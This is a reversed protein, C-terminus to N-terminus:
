EIPETEDRAAEKAAEEAQETLHAEYERKWTNTRYGIDDVDAGDGTLLGGADKGDEGVSYVVLDEGDQIIRLPGHFHKPDPVAPLFDPVLQEVSTPYVDHALRYRECALFADLIRNRREANLLYSISLDNGLVFVRTFDYGGSDFHDANLTAKVEAQAHEIQDAIAFLDTTKTADCIRHVGILYAEVDEPELAGWWHYPQKLQKLSDLIWVRETLMNARLQRSYSICRISSQLEALQGDTFPVSGVMRAVAVNVAHNLSWRNPMAVSHPEAELCEPLTTLALLSQFVEPADKRHVAVYTRLELLAVAWRGKFIPRHLNGDEIDAVSIPFRCQGGFAATKDLKEFLHRQRDVFEAAGAFGLWNGDPPPVSNAPEAFYPVAEAREHYADSSIEDFVALYLATCDKEPALPPIAQIVEEYSTPEGAARIRAIEEEIRQSARWRIAVWYLPAISIVLLATGALWLFMRLRLRPAAPQDTADSTKMTTKREFEPRCDM